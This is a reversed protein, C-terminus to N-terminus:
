EVVAQKGSLPSPLLDRESLRCAVAVNRGHMGLQVAISLHGQETPATGSGGESFM